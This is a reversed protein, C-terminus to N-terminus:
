KRVYSAYSVEPVCQLINQKELNQRYSLIFDNEQQSFGQEALREM